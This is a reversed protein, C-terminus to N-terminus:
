KNMQWNVLYYSCIPLLISIIVKNKLPYSDWTPVKFMMAIFVLSLGAALGVAVWNIEMDDLGM